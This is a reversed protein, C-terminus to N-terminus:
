FGFIYLNLLVGNSDFYHLIPINLIFLLLRAQLSYLDLDDPNVDWNLMLRITGPSLIPSLSLLIEPQCSDATDCAVDIENDTSSYGRLDVDIKYKGNHSIPITAM